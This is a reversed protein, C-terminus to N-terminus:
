VQSVPCGGVAQVGDTGVVTHQEDETLFPFHCVHEATVGVPLACDSAHMERGGRQLEGQLFGRM